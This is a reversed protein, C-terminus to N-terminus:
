VADLTGGIAEWPMGGAQGSFIMALGQVQEPTASEDILMVAQGHGEHIAKPWKVGIVVRTGTLDTDGYHGEIAEFGFLAECKGYDPYGEFQCGCGHNCNCSELHHVKISYPESM